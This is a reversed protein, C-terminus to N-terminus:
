KDGLMQQRFRCFGRHSNNNGPLFDRLRDSDVFTGVSKGVTQGDNEVGM